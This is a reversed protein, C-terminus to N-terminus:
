DIYGLARLKALGEDDLSPLPLDDSAALGAQVQELWERLSPSLESRAAVLNDLEDEDAILDFLRRRNNKVRLIEKQGAEVRGVELLGQQRARADEGPHFAGKHAQHLTARDVPPDMEGRLVPSWDFGQFTPPVPWGALGFLTPAVDLLSAPADIGRPELRGEWTFSM